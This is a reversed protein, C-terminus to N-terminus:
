RLEEIAKELEDVDAPYWVYKGYWSSNLRFGCTGIKAREDAVILACDPLEIEILPYVYSVEFSTPGRLESGLFVSVSDEEVNLLQADVSALAQLIDPNDLTNEEVEPVENAFEIISQLEPQKRKFQTRMAWELPWDGLTIMEVVRGQTRLSFASFFAAVIAVLLIGFLLGKNMKM